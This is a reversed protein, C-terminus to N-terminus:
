PVRDAARMGEALQLLDMIGCFTTRDVKGERLSRLIRWQLSPPSGPLPETCAVAYSHHAQLRTLTGARHMEACYRQFRRESFYGAHLYVQIQRFPRTGFVIKCVGYDRMLMIQDDYTPAHVVRPMARRMPVPALEIRLDEHYPTLMVSLVSPMASHSNACRNIACCVSLKLWSTSLATPNTRTRM